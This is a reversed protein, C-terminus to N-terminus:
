IQADVAPVAPVAPGTSKIMVEPLSSNRTTLVKLQVGPTVDLGSRTWVADRPPNLELELKGAQGVTLCSLETGTCACHLPSAGAVIRNWLHPAHMPLVIRCNPLSPHNLDLDRSGPGPDVGTQSEVAGRIM